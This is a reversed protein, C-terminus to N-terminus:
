LGLQRAARWRREGAIIQYRGPATPRVLIPQVMGTESISAALEGLAAPDMHHRPQLPNPELVEIPVEQPVGSSGGSSGGTPEPDPLLASLGKGLANRKM